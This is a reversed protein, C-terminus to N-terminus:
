KSNSSDLLRIVDLKIVFHCTRCGVAQFSKRSKWTKGRANWSSPNSGSVKTCFHNAPNWGWDYFDELKRFGGCSGSDYLWDDNQIWTFHSCKHIYIYVYIWHIGLGMWKKSLEWSSNQCNQKLSFFDLAHWPMWKKRHDSEIRINWGALSQM